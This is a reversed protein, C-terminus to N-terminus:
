DEQEREKEEDTMYRLPEIPVIKQYPYRIHYHEENGCKDCKHPYTPPYTSLVCGNDQPLMLGIGCKECVNHVMLVKCECVKEAM